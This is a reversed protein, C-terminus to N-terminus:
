YMNLRDPGGCFEYPAGKCLFDCGSDSPDGAVSGAYDLDKGCFCEGGYEVGALTFGFQNCVDTCANVSMNNCGGPVQVEYPLTRNQVDDVWCGISVFNNVGPNTKPYFGNAYVTLRNSDGCAESGNGACPMNCDTPTSNSAKKLGVGCWCERSFETGAYSFGLGDCYQVCSAGTMTTNSALFAEDLVRHQVSDSYCGKYEWKPPLGSATTLTTGNARRDFRFPRTPGAFAGVAM